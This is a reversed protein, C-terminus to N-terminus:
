SSYHGQSGTRPKLKGKRAARLAMINPTWAGLFRSAKESAYKLEKSWLTQDDMYGGIAPTFLKLITLHTTVVYLFMSQLSGHPLDFFAITTGTGAKRANSIFNAIGFISGHVPKSCIEWKQKLDTLGPDHDPEGSAPFILETRFAKRYARYKTKMMENEPDLGAELWVRGLEQHKSIRVAFACMEIAKRLHMLADGQYMKLVASAAQTLLMRSIMFQNLVAHFALDSDSTTGTPIRKIQKVALEYVTELDKILAFSHGMFKSTAEFNSRENALLERLDTPV